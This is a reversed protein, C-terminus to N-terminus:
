YHLRSVLCLARVSNCTLDNWSLTHQACLYDVCTCPEYPFDILRLVRLDRQFLPRLRNQREADDRAARMQLHREQHYQIILEVKM